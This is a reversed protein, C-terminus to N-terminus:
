TKFITATLHFDFFSVHVYAKVVAVVEVFQLGDGHGILFSRARSGAGSGAGPIQESTKEVASSGWADSNPLVKSACTKM